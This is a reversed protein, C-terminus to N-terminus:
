RKEEGDNGERKLLHILVRKRAWVDKPLVSNLVQNIAAMANIEADDTPLTVTITPPDNEPM